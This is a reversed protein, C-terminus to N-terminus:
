CDVDGGGQVTEAHLNRAFQVRPCQIMQREKVQWPVWDGLKREMGPTFWLLSAKTGRGKM